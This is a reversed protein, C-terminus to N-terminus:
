KLYASPRPVTSLPEGVLPAAPRSWGWERRRLVARWALAFVATVFGNLQLLELAQIDRMGRGGTVVRLVYGLTVTLNLVLSASFARGASRERIADGVFVAAVVLLPVAYSATRGM